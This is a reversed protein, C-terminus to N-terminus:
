LLKKAKEIQEDSGMVILREGPNIQYSADPNITYHNGPNKIGLITCNTKSWMDLEGLTINKNSQIEAVRFRDTSQTSMISLMEVVDPLIVLTAMHAGGIKDPMIVNDAGAIKLKKVSSDQSARSIVKVNPNLQKATLVVFLNDADVPLTTILARANKIGAELLVEDKTADGKMFYSVDFDLDTELENKEELVVFPIKNNFLIQASEKGNRGFGCIIVHQQLQQISNEMKIQKYLKTFEGDSFFRTLLTVFYTFLGLNVLILFITFIRGSESLPRVETFGVTSITIVTMYLAELFSFSEIAMYGATGFLITLVLMAIPLILRSFLRLRKIQLM